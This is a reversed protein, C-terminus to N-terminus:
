EAVQAPNAASRKLRLTFLMVAATAIVACLVSFADGVRAYVTIPPDPDIKLTVPLTGRIFTNGTDPDEIVRRFGDGIERDYCSGTPDIICSVGTNACRIM